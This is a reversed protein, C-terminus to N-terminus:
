DTPECRCCLSRRRSSAGERGGTFKVRVRHDVYKALDLIAQRKPRDSDDAGGGSKAGRSSAGGRQTCPSGLSSVTCTVCLRVGSM